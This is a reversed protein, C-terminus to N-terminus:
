LVPLTAALETYLIVRFGESFLWQLNNVRKGAHTTVLSPDLTTAQHDGWARFGEKKGKKAFFQTETELM